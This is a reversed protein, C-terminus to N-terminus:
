DDESDRLRIPMKFDLAKKHEELKSRMAALQTRCEPNLALNQLEGPDNEMDYLEEIENPLDPYSMYKWRKGRVCHITPTGGFGSHPRYDNEQYYEYFFSDRGAKGKFLPLWSEGQVEDPVKGGALEILTPALDANVVLEDIKSGPKALKPYRMVLPIRISPEYAKRKDNTGGHEGLLYGNDGAYIIITNDLIGQEKLQDVIRGLGEDVASVTRMMDMMAAPRNVPAVPKGNRKERMQSAIWEPKAAIDDAPNDRSRMAIGKYLDKHREPPTFPEHMAKHSLYMLFPKEHDRKIYEVARDNLEDTLYTDIKQKKGNINLVCNYYKGQGFFSVWHDFGPRPRGHQAQHWKGFYATTYGAEQLVESFNKLKPDYDNTENVVVGHRNPWTGTLFSARSPGCLSSTCFANRFHAGEEALKDLNPTKLWPFAGMSGIVDHRQDDILIFIMNPRRDKVPAVALATGATLLALAVLLNRKGLGVM